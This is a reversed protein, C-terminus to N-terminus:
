DNFDYDSFFGYPWNLLQGDDTYNSAEVYKELGEYQANFLYINVNEKSLLGLAIAEGIKNIITESHTEIIFRIDMNNQISDAIVKILMNAFLAQMRPHLHLEPQEIAILQPVPRRGKVLKKKSMEDYVKWVMTIIPLIQTYGFGVDVMNRHGKDNEQILIEVNGEQPNLKVNFHFLEQLWYNYEQLVDPELNNLYMPLNKGDSDIQEVNYNQFRYYRQASARLPGVYTIQKALTLFYINIGEIITNIHHLIYLNNIWQRNVDLKTDGEGLQEVLYDATESKTGFYISRFVKRYPSFRLAGLESLKQQTWLPFEDDVQEKQVFLLKPLLGNTDFYLVKDSDKLLNTDNVYITAAGRRSNHEIEIYQDLYEIRIIQLYDFKENENALSLRVTLSTSNESKNLRRNPIVFDNLTFSVEMNGKGDKVANKYHNFDVDEGYWLFTGNRKEGMSQRILPIFKLVSSKGSSNAGLFFNIPKLEISGTDDLCRYNKLRFSDM